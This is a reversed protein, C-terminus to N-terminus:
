YHTGSLRLGGNQTIQFSFSADFKMTDNLPMSYSVNELKAGSIEYIMKESGSALVLDFSYSSSNDLVGTISGSELGSVLSSVNFSGNAPFQPKRNFAYDNGLGYSSVRPLTVNMDVSQIFHVDKLKQGGIQLNELTVSSNANTPNIIAPAKELAASSLDIGFNFLTRGVNDNNGGTLNIAPMEMSTGTLKDFVMNSCIHSTTVVPLTGVGYRLSYSVPHCNGFALAQRGNLNLLTSFSIDNLFNDQQDESTMVYINTSDTRDFMNKFESAWNISGITKAYDLVGETSSLQAGFFITTGNGNNRDPFLRFSVQTSSASPTFSFSVRTFGNSSPTYTVNSILTATDTSFSGDGGIDTKLVGRAAFSALHDIFQISFNDSTGAKVFVSGNYTRNAEVSTLIEKRDTGGGAPTFISADTGGFPDLQGATLTINVNNWETFDESYSVLNVSTSDIFRGRVENSCNPEPIYSLNLIADPQYNFEESSFQQSGLQKLKQNPFNVSYEFSQALKYLKLSQNSTSFAISSDQAAIVANNSKIVNIAM